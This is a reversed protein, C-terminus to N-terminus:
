EGRRRVEAAVTLGMRRARVTEFATEGSDRRNVGSAAADAKAALDVGDLQEIVHEIEHAILEEPQEPTFLEITAVLQRGTRGIRTRARIQSGTPRPSPRLTVTLEPATAIRWCQRRFTPSRQLMDRVLPRYIGPDLNSPVSDPWSDRPTGIVYERLAGTATRDLTRTAAYANNSQAFGPVSFVIQVACSIAAVALWRHAGCMICHSSRDGCFTPSITLPSQTKTPGVAAGMTQRHPKVPAGFRDMRGM